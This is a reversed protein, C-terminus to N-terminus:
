SPPLPLESNSKLLAVRQSGQLADEVKHEHLGDAYGMLKETDGCRGHAL